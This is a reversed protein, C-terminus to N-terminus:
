GSEANRKRCCVGCNGLGVDATNGFRKKETFVNRNNSVAFFICNSEKENLLKVIQANNQKIYSFVKLFLM